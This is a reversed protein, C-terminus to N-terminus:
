FVTLKFNRRAFVIARSRSYVVCSLFVISGTSLNQGLRGVYNELISIPGAELPLHTIFRPLSGVFNKSQSIASSIYINVTLDSEDTNPNLDLTLEDFTATIIPSFLPMFIIGSGPLPEIGANSQLRSMNWKIFLAYGSLQASPNNRSFQKQQAVFFDWLAQQPQTLSQWGQICQLWYRKITDQFVTNPRIVNAKNKITYGYANKQLTTSGISGRIDVVLGSFRIRAM